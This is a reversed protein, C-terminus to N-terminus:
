YCFFVLKRVSSVLIVNRLNRIFRITIVVDLFMVFTNREGLPNLFITHRSYETAFIEYFFVLLINKLNRIIKLFWYLHM